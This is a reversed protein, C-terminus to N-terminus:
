PGKPSRRPRRLRVDQLRQGLEDDKALLDLDEELGLVALVGALVGLSTALEGHELRSLTGRTVGVRSALEALSMRRRLRALRLREGLGEARHQTQPFLPTDARPMTSLDHWILYIARDISRFRLWASSWIASNTRCSRRCTSASAPSTSTSRRCSSRGSPRTLPSCSPSRRTPSTSGRPTSAARRRAGHRDADGGGRRHGACRRFVWELVRSNEGFGPWLFNGEDDKRFWNVYFVRPLKAGERRRGQLWHGFYDGMHYGCFPLMAMPDHRLKGVEGAAAATTESSMISGLFVGHEWDFAERVLPVVKSRRGGFLFADIPM